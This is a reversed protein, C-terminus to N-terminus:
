NRKIRSGPRNKPATRTAAQGLPKHVDCPCSSAGSAEQGEVSDGGREDMSNLIVLEEESVLIRCSQNGSRRRSGGFFDTGNGVAQAVERTRKAAAIRLSLSYLRQSIQFEPWSRVLAATSAGLSQTPRGGHHHHEAFSEGANLHPVVLGKQLPPEKPEARKGDGGRGGGKEMLSLHPAHFLLQTTVDEMRDTAVVIDTRLLNRLSSAFIASSLSLSRSLSNSINPSSISGLLSSPPGSCAGDKMASWCHHPLLYSHFMYNKLMREVSSDRRVLLEDLMRDAPVGENRLIAEAKQIHEVELRHPRGGKGAPSAAKFNYLSNIWAFPERLAVMYFNSELSSSSGWGIARHGLYMEGRRLRVKRAGKAENRKAGYNDAMNM